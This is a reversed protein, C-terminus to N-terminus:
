SPVSTLTKFTPAALTVAAGTVASTAAWGLYVVNGSIHSVPIFADSGSGGAGVIKLKDGPAIGVSSNVTMQSLSGSSITGTVGSLTGKTGQSTCLKDYDGTSPQGMPYVIDGEMFIGMEPEPYRRGVAWRLTTVNKGEYGFPFTAGANTEVLTQLRPFMQIDINEMTVRGVMNGSGTIYVLRGYYPTQGESYKQEINRLIIRMKEAGRRTPMGAGTQITIIGEEVDITRLGDITLTGKSIMSYSSTNASFVLFPNYAQAYNRGRYDVQGNLLNIEEYVPCNVEVPRIYSGQKTTFKYNDLTFTGLRGNLVLPKPFGKAVYNSVIVDGYEMSGSADSNTYIGIALGEKIADPSAHTTINTAVLNKGRFLMGGNCDHGIVDSVVANVVAHTSVPTEYSGVSRIKNFFINRSVARGVGTDVLHRTNQGYIDSAIGNQTGSFLVGYYGSGSGSYSTRPGKVGVRAALGNIGKEFRIGAAENNVMKVGEIMVNEFHDATIGAAGQGNPPVSGLELGNITGGGGIYVNRVLRMPTVTVNGKSIDYTDQLAHLLTIQGTSVSAVYGFETRNTEQGPSGNLYRESAGLHKLFVVDGAEVAGISDVSLTRTGANATTSLVPPRTKSPSNLDYDYNRYGWDRYWTDGGALNCGISFIGVGNAGLARMYGSPDVLRINAGPQMHIKVNDWIIQMGLGDSDPTFVYDGAPILLQKGDEGAEQILERMATKINETGDNKVGRSTVEIISAPGGGPSPSEELIKEVADRLGVSGFDAGQQYEILELGTIQAKLRQTLDSITVNAM